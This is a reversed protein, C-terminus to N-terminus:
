GVLCYARANLQRLMCSVSVDHTRDSDAPVKSSSQAHSAGSACAGSAGSPFSWFSCWVGFHSYVSQIRSCGQKPQQSTDMVEVSQISMARNSIAEVTSPEETNKILQLTLLVWDDTRCESASIVFVTTTLVGLPPSSVLGRHQSSGLWSATAWLAGLFSGNCFLDHLTSVHASFFRFCM